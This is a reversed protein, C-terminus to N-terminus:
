STPTRPKSAKSRRAYRLEVVGWNPYFDVVVFDLRALQRQVDPNDYDQPSSIKTGGLRPFERKVTYASAQQYFSVGTLALTTAIFYVGGSTRNSAKSPM